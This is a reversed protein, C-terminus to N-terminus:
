EAALAYDQAVGQGSDYCLGLNRQAGSHGQAAAKGYWEAALAYDQAVGKVLAYCNGLNYLADLDGQAAAKSYWAAALTHDQAVGQGHEYCVGLNFKAHMHAQAAAKGYLDAALADNQVAGKGFLYRGALLFQGMVRRGDRPLGCPPRGMAPVRLRRPPVVKSNYAVQRCAGCRLAPEVGCSPQAYAALRHDISM